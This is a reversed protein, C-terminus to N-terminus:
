VKLGLCVHGLPDYPSNYFTSDEKIFNSGHDSNMKNMKAVQVFEEVLLLVYAGSPPFMPVDSGESIPFFNNSFDPTIKWPEIKLLM